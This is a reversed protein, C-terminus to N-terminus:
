LSNIKKLLYYGIFGIVLYYIIKYLDNNNNFYNKIILDSIGFAFIYIFVWGIEM